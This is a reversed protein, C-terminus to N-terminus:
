SPTGQESGSLYAFDTLRPISSPFESKQPPSCSSVIPRRAQSVVNYDSVAYNWLKISLPGPAFFRYFLLLCCLFTVGLVAIFITITPFTGQRLCRYGWHNSNCLCNFCDPGNFVCGSNAPCIHGRGFALCYNLQHEWVRITSNQIIKTSNWPFYGGPSSIGAYGILLLVNVFAKGHAESEPQRIFAEFIILILFGVLLSSGTLLNRYTTFCSGPQIFRDWYDRRKVRM